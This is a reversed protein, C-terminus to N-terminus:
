MIVIASIAANEPVDSIFQAAYNTTNWQQHEDRIIYNLRSGTRLGISIANFQPLPIIFFASDPYISRLDKISSGVSLNDKTRFFPSEVRIRNVRTQKLQTKVDREDIFEGEITVFGTPLEVTKIMWNYGEENMTSDFVAKTELGQFSLQNLSDGLQAFTLGEECIRTPNEICNSADVRETSEGEITDQEADRYHIEYNEKEQNQTTCASFLFLCTWCFVPCAIFHLIHIKIKM